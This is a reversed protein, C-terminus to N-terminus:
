KTSRVHVPTWVEAEECAGATAARAGRGQRRHAATHGWEQGGSRAKGQSEPAGRRARARALHGARSQCVCVCMCVSSARTHTLPLGAWPPGDWLFNAGQAAHTTGACM